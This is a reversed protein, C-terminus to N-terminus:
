PTPMSLIEMLADRTPAAVAENECARELVERGSPTTVLTNIAALAVRFDDVLLADAVAALLDPESELDHGSLATVAAAYLQPNTEDLHSLAYDRATASAYHQLLSLARVRVMMTDGHDALWILSEEGTEYQALTEGDPLDAVHHAGLLARITDVNAPAEAFTDTPEEPEEAPTDDPETASPTITGRSTATVPEEAQVVVPSTGCAVAVLALATTMRKM